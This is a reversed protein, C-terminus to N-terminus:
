GCHPSNNKRRNFGAFIGNFYTSVLSFIMLIILIRRQIKEAPARRAKQAARSPNGWTKGINDVLKDVYSIRQRFHTKAARM